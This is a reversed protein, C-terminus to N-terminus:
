EDIDGTGGTQRQRKQIGNNIGGDKGLKNWLTLVGRM